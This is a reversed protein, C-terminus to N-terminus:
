AGASRVSTQSGKYYMYLFIYITVRIELVDIEPNQVLFSYGIEYVPSDTRMQVATHESRKGVTVILYPDPRSQVRASQM